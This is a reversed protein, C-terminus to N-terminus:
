KIAEYIAIIKKLELIEVSLDGFTVHSGSLTVSRSKEEWYDEVFYSDINRTLQTYNIEIDINTPKM